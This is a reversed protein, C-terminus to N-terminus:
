PKQKHNLKVYGSEVGLKQIKGPSIILSQGEHIFSESFFLMDFVPTLSDYIPFFFPFSSFTAKM